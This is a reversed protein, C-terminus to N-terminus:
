SELCPPIVCAILAVSSSIFAEERECALSFVGSILPKVGQKGTKGDMVSYFM